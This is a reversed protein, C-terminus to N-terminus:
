SSGKIMYANQQQNRVWDKGSVRQKIFPRSTDNKDPNPITFVVDKGKSLAKMQNMLRQGPDRNPTKMSSRREGKSVYHKGTSKNAM